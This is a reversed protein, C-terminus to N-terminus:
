GGVVEWRQYNASQGGPPQAGALLVAEGVLHQLGVDLLAVRATQGREVEVQAVTQGLLAQEREEVFVTVLQLPQNEGPNRM